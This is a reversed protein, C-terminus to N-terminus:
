LGQSSYLEQVVDTTERIVRFAEDANISRDGHVVPCADRYYIKIARRKLNGSSIARILQNFVKPNIEIVNDGYREFFGKKECIDKTAAELLTRCMSIVANHQELAFCTRLEVIYSRLSQAINTRFILTNIKFINNVYEHHSIWSYFLESGLDEIQGFDLEDLLSYEGDKNELTRLLNDTPFPKQVRTLLELDDDSIGEVVDSQVLATQVQIKKEIFQPLLERLGDFDSKVIAEVVAQDLRVLARAAELLYTWTEKPM